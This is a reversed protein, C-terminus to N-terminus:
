KGFGFGRRRYGSHYSRSVRSNVKNRFGEQRAVKRRYFNPHRKRTTTGNSGFKNNGYYSQARSRSELYRNHDHRPILMSAFAYMGYFEWFSLGGRSVWRGYREDGIHQYGEPQAVKSEGDKTKSILTMGLNQRHKHYYDLPVDQWELTIEEPQADPTPRFNVRYKHQATKFFNGKIRMDVLTLAYEPYTALRQQLQQLRNDCAALTIALLLTALKVSSM